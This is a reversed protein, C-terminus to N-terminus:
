ITVFPCNYPSNYFTNPKLPFIIPEDNFLNDLAQGSTRQFKVSFCNEASTGLHENDVLVLNEVDIFWLIHGGFKNRQINPGVKSGRLIMGCGICTNDHIYFQRGEPEPGKPWERIGDGNTQAQTIPDKAKTIINSQIIAEARNFVTIGAGKWNNASGAKETMTNNLVFVNSGTQVTVGGGRNSHFENRQIIIDRDFGINAASAEVDVGFQPPTGKTNHIVNDEIAIRRAGVVSIGQRRNNFLESNRITVDHSVKGIVLIGDGTFKSIRMDDILIHDAETICIGHGEDHHYIFRDGVPQGVYGHADRDGLLAGGRITVNSSLYVNILCYNWVSNPTMELTANPGMEFVVDSPLRIGEYYYAPSGTPKGLIIHGEQLLLRKFGNDVAFDIAAQLHLSNQLPDGSVGDIIQWFDLDIVYQDSALVAPMEVKFQPSPPQQRLTKEALLLKYIPPLFNFTSQAFAPSFTQTLLILGLIATTYQKLFNM